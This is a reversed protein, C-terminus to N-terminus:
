RTQSKMNHGRGIRQPHKSEPPTVSKALDAYKSANTTEGMQQYMTALNGYPVALTSKALVGNEVSTEVLGVGTQTLDLAKTQNGVQWYSVGMSVLMEGERRPIYLESAPRISTLLPAAKDYWQIATAHDLKHVAYIAGMQFYLQGVTQESSPVAQRCSAGVALNDIAEQGYKLATDTQRRTHEVRLANLYAIGLEWKVHQQWMEDNSQALLEKASEEAEGVWPAPDLTPRFSALAALVHQAIFLRLEVSGGDKAIYDEALGSARGIWQSLSEIKKNYSQRAVEEAIYVHAEVLLQKAAHRVKPDNSTALKDAVDIARQEFSITKSAIEGDGLSALRAMQHLAQARDIPALDERDLVARVKLVSDDYQGLLERTQGRCLQFAANKPEIDCAEAAAADAQDAQGTALYIKALLFYAHAVEPDLTIATKLDNINQSYPGNLHQEARLVFMHSDLPRIVVRSVPQSAKESDVPTISESQSFLFLVGREPFALGIPKEADDTIKVPDNRDLSLQQALHKAELPAALTIKISAVVGDHGVLVEIAHFPSKRYILVDGEPTQTSDAPKGWSSVLEHKTSKGVAIGQFKVADFPISDSRVAVAHRASGNISTEASPPAMKKPEAETHRPKDHIPAESVKTLADGFRLTTEDNNNDVALDPTHDSSQPTPQLVAADDSVPKIENLPAERTAVLVSEEKAATSHVAYSPPALATAVSVVSIGLTVLTATKCKGPITGLVNPPIIRETM